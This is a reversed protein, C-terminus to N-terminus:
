GNESRNLSAQPGPGQLEGDEKRWCYSTQQTFFAEKSVPAATKGNAVGVEVRRSLSVIQEPM